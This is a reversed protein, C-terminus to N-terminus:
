LLQRESIPSRFQLSVLKNVTAIMSAYLSMAIFAAFSTQKDTQQVKAFHFVLKLGRRCIVAPLPVLLSIDIPNADSLYQYETLFM